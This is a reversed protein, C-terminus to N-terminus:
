VRTACGQPLAPRFEDKILERTMDFPDAYYTQQPNRGQTAVAAAVSMKSRLRERKSKGWPVTLALGDSEATKVKLVELTKYLLEPDWEYPWRGEASPDEPDPIPIILRDYLLVDSVFSADSVHDMVSFAGWRERMVAGM